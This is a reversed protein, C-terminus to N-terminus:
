EGIDKEVFVRLFGGENDSFHRQSGIGIQGSSQWEDASRSPIRFLIRNKEISVSVESVEDSRAIAYCLVDDPKPGFRISDELLGTQSFTTVEKASLRLRM